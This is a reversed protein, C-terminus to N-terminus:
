QYASYDANRIPIRQRFIHVQAVHNSLYNAGAVPSMGRWRKLVDSELVGIELEVFAPVANSVFYSGEQGL